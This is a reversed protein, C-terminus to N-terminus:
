RRLWLSWDELPQAPITDAEVPVVDAEYNISRLPYGVREIEHPIGVTQTPDRQFHRELIVAAHSFRFLTRQMGERVLAEAVEADSKVLDLRSKDACLRDPTIAPV